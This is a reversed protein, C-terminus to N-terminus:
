QGWPFTCKKTCYGISARLYRRGIWVCDQREHLLSILIAGSGTGVDLITPNKTDSILALAHEVLGETEPRPILVHSNVYFSLSFFEKQQTIYAIPEHAMRRNLYGNFTDLVSPSIQTNGQVILDADSYGAAYGLLIRVDIDANKQGNECLSLVAQRRLSDFTNAM